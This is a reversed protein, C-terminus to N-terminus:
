EWLSPRTEQENVSYEIKRFFVLGGPLNDICCLEVQLIDTAAGVGRRRSDCKVSLTSSWGIPYAQSPQRSCKAHKIHECFISNAALEIARMRIYRPTEIRCRSYLLFCVIWRNMGYAPFSSSCRISRGHQFFQRQCSRGIFGFANEYRQGFCNICELFDDVACFRTTDDEYASRNSGSLSEQSNRWLFLRNFLWSNTRMSKSGVRRSNQHLALSKVAAKVASVEEFFSSQWQHLASTTEFCTSLFQRGGACFNRQISFLSRSQQRAVVSTRSSSLLILFCCRSCGASTLNTRPFSMILNNGPSKWINWRLRRKSSLLSVPQTM